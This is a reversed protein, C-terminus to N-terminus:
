YDLFYLNDYMEDFPLDVWSESITYLKLNWQDKLVESIYPEIMIFNPIMGDYMTSNQFAAGDWDESSYKEQLEIKVVTGDRKHLEGVSNNKETCYFLCFNIGETFAFRYPISFHPSASLVLVHLGDHYVSINKNNIKIETKGIRLTESVHSQCKGVMICCMRLLQVLSKTQEKSIIM